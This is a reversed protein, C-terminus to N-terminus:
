MMRRPFSAFFTFLVAAVAFDSVHPIWLLVTVLGPLERWVAGIRGPLVIKFVGVTALAWAGTRAIADDPRKLVIVLALLLALFQVSLTLLLFIGPGTEWYSWPARPLTLSTQLVRDGRGVGLAIPRDFVVHVDVVTWDQVSHIAKGDAFQIIDNPLLGARAAPSGPAIRTLVMRNARYDAEFGSDEPRWVDCYVLLAFYAFFSAALTLVWWPATRPMSSRPSPAIM